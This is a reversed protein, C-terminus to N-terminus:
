RCLAPNVFPNQAGRIEFHLHPGTSQGTSGVYGVTQNKSVIEGASVVGRSMHSYLTQTGNGHLIVIFNGYGGNWAGNARNIIVTGGASARIPTGQSVALDVGNHGHIKQSLRSGPVPCSYYGPYSSGTNSRGSAPSGSVGEGNPIMIEDGAKLVSATTLDNYNLIDNVDAKYKKAINQVTDGNKITHTIGTVPLIVLTQGPQLVTKSGINNAWLITNVSVNFMKAVSSVTDGSRIVYISIQTNLNETSTANMQAIEPSLATGDDELPLLDPAQAPQFPNAVAQLVIIPSIQSDATRPELLKASVEQDGMLMSLFSFFGANATKSSAFITSVLGSVIVLVALLRKFGFSRSYQNKDSQNSHM